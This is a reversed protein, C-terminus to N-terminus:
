KSQIKRTKIMWLNLSILYYYNLLKRTNRSHTKKLDCFLTCPYFQIEPLNWCHVGKKFSSVTSLKQFIASDLYSMATVTYNSLRDLLHWCGDTFQLSIKLRPLLSSYICSKRRVDLHTDTQTQKCLFHTLRKHQTQTPGYNSTIM